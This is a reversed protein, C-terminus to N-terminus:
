IEPSCSLPSMPIGRYESVETGVASIFSVSTLHAHISKGNQIAVGEDGKEIKVLTSRSIGAREAIQETSM